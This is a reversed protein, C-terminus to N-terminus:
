NEDEKREAKWGWACFGYIQNHDIFTSCGYERQGCEKCRVLEGMCDGDVGDPTERERYIYERWESVGIDAYMDDLTEYVKSLNKRETADKLAQVTEENFGNLDNGWDLRQGCKECYNQEEYVSGRCNPCRGYLSGCAGYGDEELQQDTPAKPIDREIPVTKLHELWQRVRFTQMLRSGNTYIEETDDFGYQQEFEEWTDPFAMRVESM